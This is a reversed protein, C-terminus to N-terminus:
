GFAHSLLHTLASEVFYVNCCCGINGLSEFIGRMPVLTRSNEIVPMVDYTQYKGDIVISIEEEAFVTHSAFSLVMLMAMILSLLKKM